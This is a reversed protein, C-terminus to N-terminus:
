AMRRLTLHLSGKEDVTEAALAFGQTALQACTAHYAYRQTVQQLFAERKINKVGWWDGVLEYCEETQRFGVQYGKTKVKIDVEARQAGFGGIAQKGTAYEYGLDTLAMTIYEAEVLQTKVRTIHSM